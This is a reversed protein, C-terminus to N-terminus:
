VARRKEYRVEGHGAPGGMVWGAAQYVHHARNQPERGTQLWITHWGADFLWEEAAKLLARGYGRGEAGPSVFLAFVCGTRGDAMSFGCLVGRHEAVWTRADSSDLMAVVSGPTIAREALQALDMHNERVSTRVDFLAPIDGPTAIRVAAHRKM